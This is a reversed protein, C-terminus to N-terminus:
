KEEDRTWDGLQRWQRILSEHSIDIVAESQLPESIPPMLFSRGEARFEDLVPVVQEPSAGTVACIKSLTVPRRVTHGDPTIEPQIEVEFMEAPGVIAAQNQERTLRPTLFQSDNMAEPLGRFVTCNGLHDSRMTLIVYIPASAAAASALLLDVFANAESASRER